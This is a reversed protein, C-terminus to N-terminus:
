NGAGPMPDAPPVVAKVGAVEGFDRVPRLVARFRELARQVSPFRQGLFVLSGARAEYQQRMATKGDIFEQFVQRLAKLMAEDSRVAMGEIEATLNTQERASFCRLRKLIEGRDEAYVGDLRVTSRLRLAEQLNKDMGGSRLAETLACRTIPRDDDLLATLMVNIAVFRNAQMEAVTPKRREDLIHQAENVLRQDEEAAASTRGRDNGSRLYGSILWLAGLAFSVAALVLPLVGGTAVTGTVIFLIGMGVSTAGYAMRTESRSKKRLEDAEIADFARDQHHTLIRVLEKAMTADEIAKPSETAAAMAVHMLRAGRSTASVAQEGLWAVHAQTASQVLRERGEMRRLDAGRRRVADLDGLRREAQYWGVAGAGFHLVGMAIGFAGSAIGNAAIDVGHAGFKSAADATGCGTGGLQIVCDRAVAIGISLVNDNSAALQNAAQEYLVYHEFDATLGLAFEQLEANVRKLDRRTDELLLTLSHAFPQIIAEPLGTEDCPWSQLLSSLAHREALLSAVAPNGAIFRNRGAEHEALAHDIESKKKGEKWALHATGVAEVIAFLGSLISGEGSASLHSDISFNRVDGKVWGVIHIAERAAAAIGWAGYIYENLLHWGKKTVLKADSLYPPPWGSGQHSHEAAGVPIASVVAGQRVHVAPPTGPGQEDIYQDLQDGIGRSPFKSSEPRIDTSPPADGQRDCSLPQHNSEEYSPPLLRTDLASIPM